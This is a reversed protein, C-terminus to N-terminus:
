TRNVSVFCVQINVDDFLGCSIYSVLLSLGGTESRPIKSASHHEYQHSNASQVVLEAWLVRAMITM